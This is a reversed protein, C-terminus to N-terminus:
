GTLEALKSSVQGHRFQGHAESVLVLPPQRGDEEFERRASGLSAAADWAIGNIPALCREGLSVIPGRRIIAMM